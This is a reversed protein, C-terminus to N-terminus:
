RVHIRDDHSVSELNIKYYKNWTGLRQITEIFFIQFVLAWMAFLKSSFFSKIKKKIVIQYIFIFIKLSWPLPWIYVVWMVEYYKLIVNDSNSFQLNFLREKGSSNISYEKVNSYIDLRFRLNLYNQIWKSIFRFTM